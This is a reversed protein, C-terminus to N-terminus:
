NEMVKFNWGLDVQCEHTKKADYFKVPSRTYNIFSFNLNLFNKKRPEPLELVQNM